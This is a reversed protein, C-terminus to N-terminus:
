TWKVGFEMHFSLAQTLTFSVYIFDKSFYYDVGIENKIMELIEDKGYNNILYSSIHEEREYKDGRYSFLEDLFTEDIDILDTIPIQEGSQMDINIGNLYEHSRWGIFSEELFYFSLVENQNYSIVYDINIYFSDDWGTEMVGDIRNRVFSETKNNVDIYKEDVIWPIYIKCGNENMLLKREIDIPPYLEESSSIRSKLDMPSDQETSQIFKSCGACLILLCTCIIFINKM